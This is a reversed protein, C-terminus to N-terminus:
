CSQGGEAGNDGFMIDFQTTPVAFENVCEAVSLGSSVNAGSRASSNAEELSNPSSPLRTENAKKERKYRGRNQCARRAQGETAAVPRARRLRRCPGPPRQAGTPHPSSDRQHRWPNQRSFPEEATQVPPRQAKRCSMGADTTTSTPMAMERQPPGRGASQGIRGFTTRGCGSAKRPARLWVALRAGAAASTEHPASGRPRAV